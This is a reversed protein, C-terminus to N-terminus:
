AQRKQAETAKDLGRKQGGGQEPQQCGALVKGYSGRRPEQSRRDGANQRGVHRPLGPQEQRQHQCDSTPRQSRHVDGRCTHSSIPRKPHRQPTQAPLHPTPLALTIQAPPTHQDGHAHLCRPRPHPHAAATACPTPPRARCCAHRQRQETATDVSHAAKPSSCPTSPDTRSAGLAATLWVWATLCLRPYCRMRRQGGAAPGGAAASEAPPRAPDESYVGSASASRTASSGPQPGIPPASSSNLASNAPRTHKVAKEREPQSARQSSLRRLTGTNAPQGEPPLRGTLTRGAPAATACAALRSHAGAWAQRPHPQLCRGSRRGRVQPVQWVENRVGGIM